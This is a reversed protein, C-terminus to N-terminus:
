RARVCVLFAWGGLGVVTEVAPAPAGVFVVVIVLVAVGRLAQALHTVHHTCKEPLVIGGELVYRPGGAVQWVHQTSSSGGSDGSGGSGGSSHVGGGGRGFYIENDRKEAAARWCGTGLLPCGGGGDGRPTTTKRRPRRRSDTALSSCAPSQQVATRCVKVSASEFLDDNVSCIPYMTSSSRTKKDTIFTSPNTTINQGAQAKNGCLVVVM